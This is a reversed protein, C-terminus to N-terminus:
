RRLGRDTRSAGGESLGEPLRVGEDRGSRWRGSVERGVVMLVPGGAVKEIEHADRKWAGHEIPIPPREFKKDWGWWRVVGKPM